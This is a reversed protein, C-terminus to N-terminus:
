IKTTEKLTSQKGGGIKQGLGGGGNKTKQKKGWLMSVKFLGSWNGQPTDQMRSKDTEKHFYKVEEETKWM